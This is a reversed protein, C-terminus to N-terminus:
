LWGSTFDNVAFLIQLESLHLCEVSQEKTPKATQVEVPESKYVGFASSPQYSLAENPLTSGHKASVGKFPFPCM